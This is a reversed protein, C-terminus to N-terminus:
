DSILKISKGRMGPLLGGFKMDGCLAMANIRFRSSFFRPVNEWFPKQM